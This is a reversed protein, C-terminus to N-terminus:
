QFCPSKRLIEPISHLYVPGSVTPIYLDRAAWTAPTACDRGDHGIANPATAQLLNAGLVPPDSWEALSAALAVGRAHTQPCLEIMADGQDVAADVEIDIGLLPLSEAVLAVRLLCVFVQLAPRAGSAILLAPRGVGSMRPVTWASVIASTMFGPGGFVGVASVSTLPLGPLRASGFPSGFGGEDAGGGGGSRLATATASHFRM